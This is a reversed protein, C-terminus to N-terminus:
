ESRVSARHTHAFAGDYPGREEQDRPRDNRPKREPKREQKAPAPAAAKQQQKPAQLYIPCREFYM